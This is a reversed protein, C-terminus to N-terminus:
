RQGAGPLSQAIVDGVLQGFPSAVTVYPTLWSLRQKLVDSRQKQWIARKKVPEAPRLEPDAIWAIVYLRRRRDHLLRACTELWPEAGSRGAGILGAVTDRVKCGIALPLDHAQRRKTEIPYGRYDKVEILYLDGERVGVIDVAKSGTPVVDGTAEDVLEGNLRCVGRLFASTDDWKEAVTWSEGFEFRIREVDLAKV